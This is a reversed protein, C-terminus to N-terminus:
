EEDKERFYDANFVTSRPYTVTEESSKKVIGAERKQTEIRNLTDLNLPMSAYDNEEKPYGSPGSLNETEELPEPKEAAVSQEVSESEEPEVLMGKRDMRRYTIYIGLALVVTVAIGGEIGFDGGNILKKGDMFSTAFVSNGQAMGSVPIGFINNQLFNWGSHLAAVMWINGREVFLLGFLSGCLFINIFALLTVHDNSMHMAMFVGSSIIVSYWVSHNRSLSVLLYGRCIVEEAMGQIMYGVFYLVIYGPIMGASVGEFHVAGTGVCLLYAGGFLVIAWLLGKIYQVPIHGRTFGMTAFSRKEILRCYGTYLAILLIEAFLTYILLWEPQAQLLASYKDMDISGSWLGGTMDSGGAQGFWSAADPRGAIYVLLGPVMAMAEVFISIVYLLIFIVMEGWMSHAKTDGADKMFAPMKIERM